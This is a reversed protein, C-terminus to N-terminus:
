GNNKDNNRDSKSTDASPINGDFAAKLFRTIAVPDHVKQVKGDGM